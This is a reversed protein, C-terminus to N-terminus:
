YLALLDTHRPSCMDPTTPPHHNRGPGSFDDGPDSFGGGPGSHGHHQDPRTSNAEALGTGASDRTAADAEQVVRCAWGIM